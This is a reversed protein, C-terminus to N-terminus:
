LIASPITSNAATPSYTAQFSRSFIKLDHSEGVPQAVSRGCRPIFVPPLLTMRLCVRVTFLKTPVLSFASLM